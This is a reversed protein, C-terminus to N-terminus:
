IRSDVVSNYDYSSANLSNGQNKKGREKKREREREREVYSKGDGENEKAWFLYLVVQCMAIVEARGKM